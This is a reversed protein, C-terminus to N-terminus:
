SPWFDKHSRRVSEHACGQHSATPVTVAAVAKLAIQPEEAAVAAVNAEMATGSISLYPYSLAEGPPVTAVTPVRSYQNWWADHQDQICEQRISGDPSSKRAPMMGTEDYSQRKCNGYLLHLSLGASPGAPL